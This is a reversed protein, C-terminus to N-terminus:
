NREAIFIPQGWLWIGQTCSQTKSSIEFQKEGDQPAQKAKEVGLQEGDSIMKVLQNLLYSKGTRQVGNVSVISIGPQEENRGNGRLKRIVDLGAPNTKFQQDAEDLYILRVPERSFGAEPPARAEGAKTPSGAGKKSTRQM